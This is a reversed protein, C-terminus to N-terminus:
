LMTIYWGVYLLTIDLLCPGIPCVISNM